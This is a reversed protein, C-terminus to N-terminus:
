SLLFLAMLLHADIVQCYSGLFLKTTRSRTSSGPATTLLWSTATSCLWSPCSWAEAAKPYRPDTPFLLVIESMASYYILRESENRLQSHSYTVLSRPIVRKIPWDHLLDSGPLFYQFLKVTDMWFYPRMLSNNWSKSGASKLKIFCFTTLVWLIRLIFSCRPCNQFAADYHTRFKQIQANIKM